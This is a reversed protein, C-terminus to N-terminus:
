EKKKVYKDPNSQVDRAEGQIIILAYLQRILSEPWNMVDTFRENTWEAVAQITYMDLAWTPM